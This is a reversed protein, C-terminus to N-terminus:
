EISDAQRYQQSRRARAEYRLKAFVEPPTLKRLLKLSGYLVLVDDLQGIVPIFNPIIQVPSVVYALACGAVAKAYWPITQHQLLASILRLDCLIVECREKWKARIAIKEAPRLSRGNSGIVTENSMTSIRQVFDGGRLSEIQDLHRHKSEKAAGSPYEM